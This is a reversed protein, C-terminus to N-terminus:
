DRWDPLAAGGPRQGGDGDDGSNQAKSKRDKREKDIAAVLADDGLSSAASRLWGLEFDTLAPLDPMLAVAAQWASRADDPRSLEKLIMGRLSHAPGDGSHEIRIDIMELAQAPNEKRLALALNFAASSSQGQRIAERYYEVQAQIDGMEGCILGLQVLLWSSESGAASALLGELLQRAREYEKLKFHLLAMDRLLVRQRNGSSRAIEEELELIRDRDANPNATVSFPNDLDVDFQQGCTQTQVEMRIQMGQNDDVKIRLTIPDGQAVPALVDRVQSHLTREGSLFEAHLKVAGREAGEAMALGTITEWSGDAPYPLPTNAAIVVQPGSSTRVSIADAITARLPSVGYAALLLAQYAAGRGVCRQADLPDSYTLISADSFYSTLAERVSYDLSAGGVLLVYDIHMPTWDARTLTDRIPSFISAAQYYEDTLPALLTSSVFRKTASRMQALTLEPQALRLVGIEPHGTPVDFPTPLTVRLAPDDENFTGLQIRHTVLDSLKKKLQEALSALAPLVFDRKLKYNLAFPEIGNEELLLPMLVQAAIVLDVDSGGIRHFRSVGKRAVSLVGDAARSADLLAVDCTGGGFDVVMVRTRPRDALVTGASNVVYDLFAAVPEDFLDQGALTIGAAAAADITDQRQTLQFSAPVTVVVRDIPRESADLAAEHLFTLVRAAIERPTRYGEPAGLYERRTGIENKTEWWIETGRRLPVTASSRMRHAGEGVYEIGDLLSVVSPVLDRVVEGQMTRQPIDILSAVPPEGSTPDWVIETVTSNTTGLDIGIVRIAQDTIPPQNWGPLWELAASM